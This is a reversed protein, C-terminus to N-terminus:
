VKRYVSNHHTLVHAAHIPLGATHGENSPRWVFNKRLDAFRDCGNCAHAEFLGVRKGEGSM